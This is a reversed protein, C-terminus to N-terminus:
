FENLCDLVWVKGLFRATAPYKWRSKVIFINNTPFAVTKLESILVKFSFGFSMFYKLIGNEFVGSRNNVQLNRGVFTTNKTRLNEM